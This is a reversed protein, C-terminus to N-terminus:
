FFVTSKIIYVSILGSFTAPMTTPSHTAMCFMKYRVFSYDNKTGCSAELLPHILIRIHAVYPEFSDLITQIVDVSHPFRTRHMISFRHLRSVHTLACIM